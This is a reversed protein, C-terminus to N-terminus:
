IWGRRRYVLLGIREHMIPGFARRRDGPFRLRELDFDVKM